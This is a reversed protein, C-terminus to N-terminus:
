TATAFLYADDILEFPSLGRRPEHRGTRSVDEENTIFYVGRRTLLDIQGQSTLVNGQRLLLRKRDDYVNCQLAEGVRIDGKEIRIRTNRSGQSSRM